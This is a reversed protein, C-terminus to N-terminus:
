FGAQERYSMVMRSLQSPELIVTLYDQVEDCTADRSFAVLEPLGFVVTAVSGGLAEFEALVDEKYTSHRPHIDVCFLLERPKLVAGIEPKGKCIVDLLSVKAEILSKNATRENVNTCAQLFLDHQLAIRPAIQELVPTTYMHIIGRLVSVREDLASATILCSTGACCCPLCLWGVSKAMWVTRGYSKSASVIKSM